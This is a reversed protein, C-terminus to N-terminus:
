HFNYISSAAKAHIERLVQNIRGFLCFEVQPRETMCAWM